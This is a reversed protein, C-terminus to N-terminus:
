VYIFYNFEDPASNNRTGLVLHKVDFVAESTFLIRNIKKYMYLTIKMRTYVYM